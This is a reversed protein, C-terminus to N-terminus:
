ARLNPPSAPEPSSDSAPPLWALALLPLPLLVSQLSHDVGTGNDMFSGRVGRSRACAISRALRVAGTGMDMGCCVRGSSSCPEM